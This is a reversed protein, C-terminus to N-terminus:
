AEKYSNILSGALLVKKEAETVGNLELELDRIAGDKGIVKATFRTAGDEVAKRIGPLYLYEGPELVIEKEPCTFPLIGWNVCNNRYRKTAYEICINAQRKYVDEMTKKMTGGVIREARHAKAGAEKKGSVCAKWLCGSIKRKHM